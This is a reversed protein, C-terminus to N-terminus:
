RSGAIRTRKKGVRISKDLLVVDSQIQTIMFGNWDMRNSDRLYIIKSLIDVLPDGDLVKSNYEKNQDFVFANRFLFFCIQAAIVHKKTNSTSVSCQKSFAGGIRHHLLM